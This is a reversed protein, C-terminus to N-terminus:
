RAGVLPRVQVIFLKDDVFGLLREGNLLPDSAWTRWRLEDPIPSSRGPVARDDLVKLFLMWALQSLREADGKFGASNRLFDLVGEITKEDAM